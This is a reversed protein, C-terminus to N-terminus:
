IVGAVVLHELDHFAAFDALATHDPEIGDELIGHGGTHLVDEDLDLMVAVIHLLTDFQAQIVQELCREHLSRVAFLGEPLM